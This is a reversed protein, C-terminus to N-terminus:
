FIDWVGQGVEDPRVVSYYDQCFIKIQELFEKCEDKELPTGRLLIGAMKQWHFIKDRDEVSTGEWIKQPIRELEDAATEWRNMGTLLKEYMKKSPDSHDTKGWMAKFDSWLAIMTKMNWPFNTHQTHTADGNELQQIFRSMAVFFDAEGKGRRSFSGVQKVPLNINLKFLSGYKKDPNERLSGIFEKLEKIDGKVLDSIHREDAYLWYHKSVSDTLNEPVFIFGTVFLSFFLEVLRENSFVPSLSLHLLRQKGAAEENFMKCERAVMNQEEALIHFLPLVVSKAKIYKFYLNKCDRLKKVNDEIIGTDMKVVSLEYQASVDNITGFGQDIKGCKDTLGDMLLQGGRDTTYDSCVIYTESALREDGPDAQISSTLQGVTNALEETINNLKDEKEKCVFEWIYRYITWGKFEQELKSYAIKSLNEFADIGDGLSTDKYYLSISAPHKGVSWRIDERSIHNAIIQDSAIHKEFGGMSMDGTSVESPLGISVNESGAWNRLQNEVGNISQEAVRYTSDSQPGNLKLIKDQLVDIWETVYKKIQEITYIQFLNGLYRRSQSFLYREKKLYEGCETQYPRGKKTMGEIEQRIKQAESFATNRLEIIKATRKHLYKDLTDLFIYKVGKLISLQMSIATTDTKLVDEIGNAIENKALQIKDDSASKLARNLSGSGKIGIVSSDAFRDLEKIGFHKERVDNVYKFLMSKLKPDRNLGEDTIVDETKEYYSPLKGSFILLMDKESQNFFKERQSDERELYLEAVTAEGFPDIGPDLKFDIAKVSGFLSSFFASISPKKTLTLANQFDSNGFVGSDYQHDPKYTIIDELLMIVAKAAAKEQYAKKPFLIRYSNFSSFFPSFRDKSWVAATQKESDLLKPMSARAQATRIKKNMNIQKQNVLPGTGPATLLDIMEAMTPYVTRQRIDENMDEGEFDMLSVQDFINKDEVIIPDVNEYQFRLPIEQIPSSQLRSIERIAAYTTAQMDEKTGRLEKDGGFAGDLLLILNINWTSANGVSAGFINRAMVGVDIFTGAGTGGALSCIIHVARGASGRQPAKDKIAQFRGLIEAATVFAGVRGIQRYQGAGEKFQFVKDAVTFTNKLDFSRLWYYIGNKDLPNKILRNLTELDLGKFQLYESREIALPETRLMDKIKENLEEQSMERSTDSEVADKLSIKGYIEMLFYGYSMTDICLYQNQDNEVGRTQRIRKRLSRIVKGGTGGLGIILDGM